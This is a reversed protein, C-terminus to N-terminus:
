SALGAINLDDLVVEEVVQKRDGAAKTAAVALADVILAAIGTVNSNGKNNGATSPDLSLFATHPLIEVVGGVGDDINMGAIDQELRWAIDRVSSRPADVVVIGFCREGIRGMSDTVRLTGAIRNAIQRMVLARLHRQSLNGMGDLGAFGVAVVSLVKATRRARGIEREVDRTMGLRNAVRTEPDLLMLEGTQEAALTKRLCIPLFRGLGALLDNDSESSVLSARHDVGYLVGVVVGADVLPIALCHAVGRVSPEVGFALLQMASIVKPQHSHLFPEQVQASDHSLHLTNLPAALDRVRISLEGVPDHLVLHVEACGLVSQSGRIIRAIVGSVMDECLVDRELQHVAQLLYRSVSGTESLTALSGTDVPLALTIEEINADAPTDRTGGDKASTM